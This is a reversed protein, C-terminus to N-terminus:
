SGTCRPSAQVLDGWFPLFGDRAPGAGIQVGAGVPLTSPVIILGKGPGAPRLVIVQTKRGDPRIQLITTWRDPGRSQGPRYPYPQCAPNQQNLFTVAAPIGDGRLTRQLGGPDRLERITISISGGPQRTVTWATLQATAPRAPQHSAPLLTIVAAAGAAAATIALGAAALTVRSRTRPHYDRRQLRDVAAQPVEAARASLAQRLDDEFADTKM